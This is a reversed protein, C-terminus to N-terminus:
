KLKVLKRSIQTGQETSIRLYYIGSEYSQLDLRKQYGVLKESIVLQGVANMVSIQVQGSLEDPITVFVEGKTPNPVISTRQLLAEEFGYYCDGNDRLFWSLTDSVIPCRTLDDKAIAHYWGCSSANKPPCYGNPAIITDITTGNDFVWQITSVDPTGGTLFFCDSSLTLTMNDPVSFNVDISDISTCTGHASSTQWYFTNIGEVLGDIICADSKTENKVLDFVATGQKHTWLGTQGNTGPTNGNLCNGLDYCSMTFPLGAEAQNPEAEPHLITTSSDVGCNGNSIVWHFEIDVNLVTPIFCSNPDTDDCFSGLGQNTLSWQGTGVLPTNGCLVFQSDLCITDLNCDNANAPTPLEFVTALATDAKTCFGNSVTWVVYNVGVCLGSIQTKPLTDNDIIAGPCNPVTWRAMYHFQTDAETLITGTQCLQFPGNAEADIPNNKVDFVVSDESAPCPGNCVIWSFKNSGEILGVYDTFNSNQDDFKSDSGFPPHSIWKGIGIGPVDADLSATGEACLSDNMTNVVSQSPLAFVEVEKTDSSFCVQGPGERVAWIFFTTGPVKTPYIASNPDNVDAVVASPGLVTWVGTGEPSVTSSAGGLQTSDTCCLELDIGASASDVGTVDYVVIDITDRTAPCSETSIAWEFRNLGTSLDMASNSAATPGAALWADGALVSWKGTGPSGVNALLTADELEACKVTDIPTILAQNPETGPECNIDSNCVYYWSAVTSGNGLQGQSNEGAVCVNWDYRITTSHQSGNSTSLIGEMPALAEGIRNLIPSLYNTTTSDALVGSPNLGSAYLSGVGTLFKSFRDGGDLHRVGSINSNSPLLASTTSTGDGFEGFWSSGWGTPQGDASLAMSFYLGASVDMQNSLGSVQVPVPSDVISGNGLMGNAFNTGYSSNKGWSWITGDSKLVSIHYHGAAIGIVESMATVHFVSTETTSIIGDARIGFENNGWIWVTGDAELAMGYDPGAQIDIINTLGAVQTPTINASTSITGNAYQGRNNRGWIWVTGNSRLALTFDEGVSVKAVESIGAVIDASTASDQGLNHGMQGFFNAGWGYVEGNPRLVITHGGSSAEAQVVGSLVVEERLVKVPALRQLNSSDGVQGYFNDGWGMYDGNSRLLIGHSKGAAMSFISSVGSVQIPVLSQTTSGVGLRGNANNGWSWLTGDALRAMAYAGGGQIYDVKSLGTIQVPVTTQAVSNNGLQGNANNGWSYASGNSLVAYGSSDGAAITAVNILGNVQVPTSSSTVSNNGLQGNDNEGWAWVTGDARLAMSFNEGASIAVINQLGPIKQPSNIDILTGLGLQGKNNRGWSYVEGNVSIALGHNGGAAVAVMSDLGTVRNPDYNSPVISSTGLQGYQNSGSAYIEGDALLIYSHINGAAVQTANSLARMNVVFNTQSVIANNAGLQGSTNLGTGWVKGRVIMLAHGDGCSIVSKAGFNRHENWRSNTNWSGAFMSFSITTMLCALAFPLRIRM